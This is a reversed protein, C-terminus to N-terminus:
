DNEELRNVRALLDAIAKSHGDDTATGMVQSRVLDSAIAKLENISGTNQDLMSRAAGLSMFVGAVTCLLIFGQLLNVFRNVETQSM